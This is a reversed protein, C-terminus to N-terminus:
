FKQKRTCLEIFNNINKKFNPDNTRIDSNILNHWFPQYATIGQKIYKYIM